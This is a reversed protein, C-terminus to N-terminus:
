CGNDKLCDKYNREVTRQHAPAAKYYDKTYHMERCRKSVEKCDSGGISSSREKEEEDRERRRREERERANSKIRQLDLRLSDDLEDVYSRGWEEFADLLIKNLKRIRVAQLKEPKFAMHNMESELNKGQPSETFKNWIVDYAQEIDDYIPKGTRTDLVAQRQADGFYYPEHDILDVGRESFRDKLMNGLKIKVANFKKVNPHDSPLESTHGVRLLTRMENDHGWPLPVYEDSGFTRKMKDLFGENISKEIEENIIRKLTATTLKM